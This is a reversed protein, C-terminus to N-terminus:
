KVIRRQIKMAIFKPFLPLQYAILALLFPFLSLGTGYVADLSYESYTGQGDPYTFQRWAQYWLVEFLSLLAYFTFLSLLPSLIIQRNKINTFRRSQVGMVFGLILPLLFYSVAFVLSQLSNSFRLLNLGISLFVFGLASLIHISYINRTFSLVSKVRFNRVVM